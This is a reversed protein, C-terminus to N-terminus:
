GRRPKQHWRKAEYGEIAEYLAELEEEESAIEAAELQEARNVLLKYMSDAVALVEDIPVPDRSRDYLAM